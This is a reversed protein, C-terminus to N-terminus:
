VDIESNDKILTINNSIKEAFYKTLFTRTNHFKQSVVDFEFNMHVQRGRPM